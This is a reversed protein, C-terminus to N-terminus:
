LGSGVSIEYGLHDSIIGRGAVEAMDPFTFVESNAAPACIHDVSPCGAKASPADATFASLGHGVLFQELRCRGERSGVFRGTLTQNFDGAIALPLGSKEKTLREVAKDLQELVHLWREPGTKKGPAANSPLAPANVRWPMCVGVVLWDGSGTHAVAAAATPVESVDIM